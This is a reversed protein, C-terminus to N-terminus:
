GVVGAVHVEGFRTLARSIRVEEEEEEEGEVETLPLCELM